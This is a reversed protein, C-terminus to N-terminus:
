YGEYQLIKFKKFKKLENDTVEKSFSKCSLINDVFPDM